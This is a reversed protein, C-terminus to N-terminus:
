GCGAYNVRSASDDITISGFCMVLRGERIVTATRCNATEAEFTTDNGAAISSRSSYSCGACGTGSASAAAIKRVGVSVTTYKCYSCSTRRRAGAASNSISGRNWSAENM